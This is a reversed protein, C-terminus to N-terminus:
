KQVPQIRITKATVSGDSNSTGSVDVSTGEVLDNISGDTDKTVETSDSYYITKTSGNSMKLTISKDDKSYVTGMTGGGAGFGNQGNAGAPPTGMGQPRNANNGFWGPMKSKQYFMGGCFGGAAIVIGVLVYLIIKKSM